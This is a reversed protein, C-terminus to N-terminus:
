RSKTLQMPTAPLPRAKGIVGTPPSQPNDRLQDFHTRQPSPPRRCHMNLHLTCLRVHTYHSVSYELPHALATSAALQRLRTGGCLM